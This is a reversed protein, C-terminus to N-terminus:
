LKFCTTDKFESTSFNFVFSNKFTLSTAAKSSQELLDMRAPSTTSISLNMSYGLGMQTDAYFEAEGLTMQVKPFGESNEPIIAYPTGLDNEDYPNNGNEDYVPTLFNRPFEIAASLFLRAQIKPILINKIYQEFGTPFISQLVLELRKKAIQFDINFIYTNFLITFVSGQESLENEIIDVVNEACESQDERFTLASTYHTNVDNLIQQYETVNEEEVVVISEVILRVLEVETLNLLNVCLKFFSDASYDFSSLNFNRVFSLVEWQYQLSVPFSSVGNNLDPNLVLKLGGAVDLSIRNRSIIDLSYYASDGNSSSSYQFNKYHLSALLKDLQTQLFSLSEPLNKPDFIESLKPYYRNGIVNTM